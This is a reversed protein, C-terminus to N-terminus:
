IAGAGEKSDLLGDRNEDLSEPAVRPSNGEADEVAEAGMEEEFRANVRRWSDLIAQYYEDNSWRSGVQAAIREPWEEAMKELPLHAIGERRLHESSLGAVFACAFGRVSVGTAAIEIRRLIGPMEWRFVRGSIKYDTAM